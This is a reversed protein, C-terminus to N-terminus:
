GSGPLAAITHIQRREGRSFTGWAEQILEASYVQKVAALEDADRCDLLILRMDNVEQPQDEFIPPPDVKEVPASERWGKVLELPMEIPGSDTTLTLWFQRDQRYRDTVRYAIGQGGWVWSGVPPHTGLDQIEIERSCGSHLTNV